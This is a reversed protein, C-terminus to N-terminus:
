QRQCSLMTTSESRGGIRQFAALSRKEVLVLTGAEILEQAVQDQGCFQAFGAAPWQFRMQNSDDVRQIDVPVAHGVFPLKGFELASQSQRGRLDM